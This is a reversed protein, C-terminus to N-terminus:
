CVYIYIMKMGNGIPDVLNPAKNCTLEFLSELGHLVTVKREAFQNSGGIGADVRKTGLHLLESKM